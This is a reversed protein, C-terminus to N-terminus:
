IRSVSAGWDPMKPGRLPNPGTMAILSLHSQDADSGPLIVPTLRGAANTVFLTKVGLRQM